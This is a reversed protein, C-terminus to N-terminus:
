HCAPPRVNLGEHQWTVGLFYFLYFFSVWTTDLGHYMIIIIVVCRKQILQNLLYKM